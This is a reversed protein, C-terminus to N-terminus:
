GPPQPTQAQATYGAPPDYTGAPAEKTEVAVLEERTKFRSGGMDVDSEQVVPFGDIQRMKRSWEASGTQLAALIPSLKGYAQYADVDKSAWITTVLHLGDPNSIEVKYKRANWKGVRKSEGTETVEVKMPSREAAPKQLDPAAVEAYTKEAHNLLYVKGTDLRLISSTDGEDRRLRDAGVWIRIEGGTPQDMKLGEVNSRVTLLTDAAAPVALLLFLPLLAARRPM